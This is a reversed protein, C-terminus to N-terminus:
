TWSASRSSEACTGGPQSMIPFCVPLQIHRLGSACADPGTFLGESMNEKPITTLRRWFDKGEQAMPMSIVLKYLANVRHVLPDDEGDPLILQAFALIHEGMDEFTLSGIERVLFSQSSKQLMEAVTRPDLDKTNDPVTKIFVVRAPWDRQPFINIRVQPM